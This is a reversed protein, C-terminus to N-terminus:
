FNLRTSVYHSNAAFILAPINPFRQFTWVKSVWIMELSSDCGGYWHEEITTASAQTRGQRIRPYAVSQALLEESVVGPSDSM